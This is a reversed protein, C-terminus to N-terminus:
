VAAVPEHELIWKLRSELDIAALEISRAGSDLQVKLRIPEIRFSEPEDDGHFTLRLQDAASEVGALEVLPVKEKRLLGGFTIERRHISLIGETGATWKGETRVLRVAPGKWILDPDRDSFLVAGEVFATRLAIAFAEEFSEEHGVLPLDRGARHWNELTLTEGHHEIIGPNHSRILKLEAGDHDFETDCDMCVLGPHPSEKGAGIWRLTEFTLVRGANRETFHHPDFRSELLAVDEGEVLFDAGCADCEANGAEPPLGAAVRSWESAELTDFKGTRSPITQRWRGDPLRDFQASCGSCRWIDISRGCGARWEACSKATGAPTEEPDPSAILVFEPPKWEFIAECNDCGHIFEKSFLRKRRRHLNGEACLPCISLPELNAISKLLGMRCHPCLRDIVKRIRIRGERCVPCAGERLPRAEELVEGCSPCQRRDFRLQKLELAKRDFDKLVEKASPREETGLAIERLAFARKPRDQPDNKIARAIAEELRPPVDSRIQRLYAPVEQGDSASPPLFGALAFYLSAGLGYVDAEPGLRAGRVALEPPLGERLARLGFLDQHWKRAEGFDIFYAQGNQNLLINTPRLDLHWIGQAHLDDLGPALRELLAEVEAAPLRGERVVREALTMAEPSIERSIFVTGREVFGSRIPLLNPSSIRALRRAEQQFKQRLRQAAGEGTKSLQLIGDASRFAEEPALERVICVDGRQLDRARYTIGFGGQGLTEEVEFRGNLRTGPALPTPRDSM